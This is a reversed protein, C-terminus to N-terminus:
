SIACIDVVIILVSVIEGSVNIEQLTENIIWIKMDVSSCPHKMATDNLM